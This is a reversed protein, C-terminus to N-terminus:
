MSWALIVKKFPVFVAKGSECDFLRHGHLTGDTNGYTNDPLEVGVVPDNVGAATLTGVFRVRGVLVRGDHAIVKVLCDERLDRPQRPLFPRATFPPQFHRHGARTWDTGTVISDISRRLYEEAEDILSDTSGGSDLGPHRHHGECRLDPLSRRCHWPVSLCDQFTVRSKSRHSSNFGGLNRSGGSRTSSSSVKGEDGLAWHGSYMTGQHTPSSPVSGWPANIAGERVLTAGRYAEASHTAGAARWVYRRRHGERECPTQPTLPSWPHRQALSSGTSSDWMGPYYSSGTHALCECLWRGNRPAPSALSSDASDIQKMYSLARPFSRALMADGRRCLHDVSRSLEPVMSTFGLDSLLARRAERTKETLRLGTNAQPIPRTPAAPIAFKSPLTTFNHAVVKRRALYSESKWQLPLATIDTQAGTSERKGPGSLQSSREMLIPRVPGSEGRNNLVQSRSSQIVDRHAIPRYERPGPLTNRRQKSNTYEEGGEEAVPDFENVARYKLLVPVGNRDWPGDETISELTEQLTPLEKTDDTTFILEIDDVEEEEEDSEESGQGNEEVEQNDEEPGKEADPPESEKREEAELESVALPGNTMTGKETTEENSQKSDSQTAPEEVTEMINQGLGLSKKIPTSITEDALVRERLIHNELSLREVTERLVNPDTPKASTKLEKVEGQSKELATRLAVVTEHLARVTDLSDLNQEKSSQRSKLGAPQLNPEYTGM